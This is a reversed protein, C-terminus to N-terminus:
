LEAALARGVADDVAVLQGSPAGLRDRSMKEGGVPVLVLRPM